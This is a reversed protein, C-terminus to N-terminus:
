ALTRRKQNEHIKLCLRVIKKKIINDIMKSLKLNKKYMISGTKLYSEIKQWVFIKYNKFVVAFLVIQFNYRKEFFHLDISLRSLL